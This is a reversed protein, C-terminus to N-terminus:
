IIIPDPTIITIPEPIRVHDSDPVDLVDVISSEGVTKLEIGRAPGSYVAIVKFTALGRIGLGYSAEFIYRTFSRM